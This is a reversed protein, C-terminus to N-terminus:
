LQARVMLEQSYFRKLNIQLNAIKDEYKEEFLATQAELTERDSWFLCSESKSINFVGKFSAKKSFVYRFGNQMDNIVEMVESVVQERVKAELAESEERQSHM